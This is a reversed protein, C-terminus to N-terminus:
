VVDGLGGVTESHRLASGATSSRRMAHDGIVNQKLAETTNTVGSSTDGFNGADLFTRMKDRPLFSFPVVLIPIKAALPTYHTPPDLCVALFFFISHPIGRLYYMDSHTESKGAREGEVEVEGKM